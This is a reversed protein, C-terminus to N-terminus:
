KVMDISPNIPCSPKKQAPLFLMIFQGFEGQPTKFRQQFLIARSQKTVVPEGTGIIVNRSEAFKLVFYNSGDRKLQNAGEKKCSQDM